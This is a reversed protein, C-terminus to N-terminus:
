ASSSWRPRLQFLPLVTSWLLGAVPPALRGRVPHNFLSPRGSFSCLRAEGALPLAQAQGRQLLTAPLHLRPMALSTSLRAPWLACRRYWSPLRRPHQLGSSSAFTALAVLHLRLLREFFVVFVRPFSTACAGISSPLRQTPLPPVQNSFFFDAPTKPSFSSSCGPAGLTQLSPSRSPWIPRRNPQDM